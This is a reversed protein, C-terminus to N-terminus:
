SPFPNTTDSNISRRARGDPVAESSRFLGTTLTSYRSILCGKQPSSKRCRLFFGGTKPDSIALGEPVSDQWSNKCVFVADNMLTSLEDLNMDSNLGLRVFRVNGSCEIVRLRQSINKRHKNSLTKRYDEWTKPIEIVVSRGLMVADWHLVSTEDHTRAEDMLLSALFKSLRSYRWHSDSNRLAHIVEQIFSFENENGTFISGNRLSWGELAFRLVNHTLPGMREKAIELSVIAVPQKGMKVFGVGLRNDGQFYKLAITFWEHSLYPSAGSAYFMDDWLEKVSNVDKASQWFKIDLSCKSEKM